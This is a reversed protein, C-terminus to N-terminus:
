GLLNSYAGSTGSGYNTLTALDCLVQPSAAPFPPAPLPPPHPGAALSLLPALLRPITSLPSPLAPM